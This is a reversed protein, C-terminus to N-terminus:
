RDAALRNQPAVAFDVRAMADVIEDDAAAVLAVQDFFVDGVVEQVLRPFSHRRASLRTEGCSSRYWWHPRPATAQALDDLFQAAKGVAVRHQFQKIEDMLFAPNLQRRPTSHVAAM